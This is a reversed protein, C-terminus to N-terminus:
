LDNLGKVLYSPDVRLAKAIGLLIGVTLNRTGLEISRVYTRHVGIAEALQTKSMGFSQRTAAIRRGLEVHEPGVVADSM